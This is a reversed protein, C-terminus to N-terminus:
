ADISRLAERYQSPTMGAYYSFKRGKYTIRRIVPPYLLPIMRCLYNGTDKIRRTMLEVFSDESM